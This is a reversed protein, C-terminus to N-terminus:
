KKSIHVFLWTDRVENDTIKNKSNIVREEAGILGDLSNVMGSGAFLLFLVDFELVLM